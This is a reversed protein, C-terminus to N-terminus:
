VVQLTHCNSRWMRLRVARALIVCGHSAFGPRTLSDGHVAFGSRGHVPQLPRLRIVFPGLGAGMVDFRFMEWVGRPIPGEGPLAEAQPVNTHPPHGSYGTAVYVGAPDHLEGTRQDFTWTRM